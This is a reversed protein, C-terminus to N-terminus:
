ELVVGGALSPVSCVLVDFVFYTVDIGARGHLM